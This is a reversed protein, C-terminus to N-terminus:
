RPASLRSAPAPSDLNLRARAADVFATILPHEKDYLASREPQFLTGVYFPHEPLEFARPAGDPDFGTFNLESADILHRYRPNFGYSCRYTERVLGSGMISAMKSGTSFEIDGAAEVLVCELPAVIAMNADPNTEGNDAEHYGLVNRVYEILAHQFGGCTGIFPCGTERAFRIADLAGDMNAYPSAPVCWIGDYSALQRDVPRNLDITECWEHEIRYGLKDAAVALAEPIARHAPVDTSYDGVMAIRPM